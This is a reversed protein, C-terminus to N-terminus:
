TYVLKKENCWEQIFNKEESNVSRNAKGRAQIIENNNVEITVLPTSKFENKRLFYIQTHGSAVTSIYSRVCHSLKYSENVLDDAKRPALICYTENNYILSQYNDSSVVLAFTKNNRSEKLQNLYNIMVDHEYKLHNPFLGGSYRGVNECMNLYDNYTKHNNTGKKNLYDIEKLINKDKIRINIFSVLEANLKKNFVEPCNQNIQEILKTLEDYGYRRNYSLSVCGSNFFIDLFNKIKRLKFGFIEKDNKGYINNLYYLQQNKMCQNFINKNEYYYDLFLNGYHCCDSKVCIEFLPIFEKSFFFQYYYKGTYKDLMLLPYKKKMKMDYINGYINNTTFVSLDGGDPSYAYGDTIFFRHKEKIDIVGDKVPGTIVTIDFFVDNLLEIERQIAVNRWLNDKKTNDLYKGVNKNIKVSPVNNFLETNYKKTNLKKLERYKKFFLFVNEQLQVSFIKRVENMHNEKLSFLKVNFENYEENLYCTAFFEHWFDLDCDGNEIIGKVGFTIKAEYINNWHIIGNYFGKYVILKLVNNVSSVDFKYFINDNIVYSFLKIGPFRREIRDKEFNNEPNIINGNLTNIYQNDVCTIFELM